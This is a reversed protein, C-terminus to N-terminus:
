SNYFGNQVDELAYICHTKFGPTFAVYLHLFSHARQLM